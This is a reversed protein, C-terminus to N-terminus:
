SIGAHHTEVESYGGHNMKHIAALFNTKTGICELIQVLTCFPGFLTRIYALTEILFQCIRTYDTYQQLYIIVLAVSFNGLIKLKQAALTTM